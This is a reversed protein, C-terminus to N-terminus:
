LWLKKSDDLYKRVNMFDQQDKERTNSVKYLLVIEPNLFPIGQKSYSWLSELECFISKDRRFKWKNDEIENLLVEINEILQSYRGHIEHIPLELFEDQWKSLAGKTVKNIEWDILYNKLDIQDKRAIAIELDKHQRTQSGIFLDIAWGGAIFWQKNFGTMLENVKMCQEFTM